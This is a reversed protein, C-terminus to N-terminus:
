SWQFFTFADLSLNRETHISLKIWLNTFTTSTRRNVEKPESDPEYPTTSFDVGHLINNIHNYIKTVM